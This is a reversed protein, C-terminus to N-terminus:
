NPGLRYFYIYPTTRNDPRVTGDSVIAYVRIQAGPVYAPTCSFVGDGENTVPASETGTECHWDYHIPDGEPDTASVKMFLPPVYEDDLPEGGAGSWLYSGSPPRCLNMTSPLCPIGGKGRASTISVSAPDILPPLNAPRPTVTVSISSSGVGGAFDTANVTVTRPGETQFVTVANCGGLNLVTFGPPWGLRSCPLFSSTDPDFAEATVFYQVGAPVTAGAVITVIPLSNRVEIRLLISSTAGEADRATITITRLGPTQFTYTLPINGDRDSSATLVPVDGEPDMVDFYGQFGSRPGLVVPSGIDAFITDTRVNSFIPPSNPSDAIHFHENLIPTSYTGLEIIDAISAEFKVNTTVHGQMFWLPKRRTDADLLIGLSGDMGPGVVGYLKIKADVKSFAELRMRANANAEIIRRELPTFESINNWGNGGYDPNLWKAGAKFVSKAEGEFTFDVHAEGNVGLKLNMEPVLVVPIPGIFFIIPDMPVPYITRERTIRGDFNGTVRLRTKAEFGAWAEFRDPCAPPIALCSRIGIGVNYGANFYAFGQVRVSGSGEVGDESGDFNVTVDINRHFNYSDGEDIVVNSVFISDKNLDSPTNRPSIRSQTGDNPFLEGSANLNGQYIAENLKAQVTDLVVQNGHKQTGTIKRLFGYPAAPTPESVFVDGARMDRLLGTRTAFVMRGTQPDYSTHAAITEEDAIKTTEPVIADQCVGSVAEGVQEAPYPELDAAMLSTTEQGCLNFEKKLAAVIQWANKGLSRLLRVRIAPDPAVRFKIPWTSGLGSYQGPSLTISGLQLGALVVRVTRSRNPNAGQTQWNVHYHNGTVRLRENNSGQATFTGLISCESGNVECIEVRLYNLLTTDLSGDNGSGNSLPPLFSFSPLNSVAPPSAPVVPAAARAGFAEDFTSRATEIVREWTAPFALGFTVAAGIILGAALAPLSHNNQKM